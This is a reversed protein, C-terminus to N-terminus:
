TRYLRGKRYVAIIVIQLSDVGDSVSSHDVAADALIVEADEIFVAAHLGIGRVIKRCLSQHVGRQGVGPLGPGEAGQQEGLFPFRNRVKGLPCNLVECPQMGTGGDPIEPRPM